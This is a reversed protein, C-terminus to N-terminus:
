DPAFGHSNSKPIHGNFLKLSQNALGDLL